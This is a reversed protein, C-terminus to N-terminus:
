PQGVEQLQALLSRLRDKQDDPAENLAYQLHLLANAPDGLRVYLGGIAEQITWVGVGQPAFELALLYADLAAQYLGRQAQISALMQAYNFKALPEDPIPLNLAKELNGAALELAEQKADVDETATSQRLYYEGLLAYSRHYQPDIQIARTIKQYAGDPQQTLTLLLYAWEGWILASNRSLTVAKSFYNSSIEAREQRDEANTAYSAWLSYLRALNATHDTNLPNLAQAKLLEDRAEEMFSDRQNSDEFTKAHELFARGLFLYYYDENPALENARNYITIAVPWQGSRSFPEAIKYAIDAQIIRINTIFALIIVLVLM